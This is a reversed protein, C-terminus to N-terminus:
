LAREYCDIVEESLVDWDLQSARNRGKTRLEDSLAPDRLVGIISSALSEPDSPPSVLAAGGSAEEYGPIASCVVPAGAAMAELLVIGFSEGGTSPACYVDAAAYIQPLRDYTVPGLATMWNPPDDPRMGAVVLRVDLEKRVMEMAARVVPFGKRPEPRGVFLVFPKEKMLESDPSGGSFHALDIGNPILRYEGPFYRSILSRAAESVVIRSRLRFLYRALFPKAVAYAFSREASAHFTAIAPIRSSILALLSTSPTGPEHLHLIDIDGASLREAIKRKSARSFCLRAVSRNYPIGITKGVAVIGEEARSAPAFVEVELGKRRLASSLGLIHSRVGGPYSWDYPCVIGVKM